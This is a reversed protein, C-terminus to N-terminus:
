APGTGAPSGFQFAHACGCDGGCCARRDDVWNTIANATLSKICVCSNLPRSKENGIGVETSSLGARITWDTSKAPIHCGLCDKKYDTAVQKDPAAAKFLARGWGDAWLPNNAYRHKEDKIQVFWVQITTSWHADGTTLKAHNTSLIEKVMVNGDPFKGTKRYYAATGPSVYTVHM